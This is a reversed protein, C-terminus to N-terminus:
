APSLATGKQSLPHPWGGSEMSHAIPAVLTRSQRALGAFEGLTHGWVNQAVAEGRMQQLVAVVDVGHLFKEPM